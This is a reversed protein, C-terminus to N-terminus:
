ESTSAGVQAPECGSLRTRQEQQDPWRCGYDWLGLRCEALEHSSQWVGESRIGFRRCLGDHDVGCPPASGM